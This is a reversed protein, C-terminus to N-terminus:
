NHIVVGFCHELLTLGAMLVTAGGQGDALVCLLDLDFKHSKMHIDM